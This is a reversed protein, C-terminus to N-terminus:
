NMRYTSTVKARVLLPVFVTVVVKEKIKGKATKCMFRVAPVRVKAIQYTGSTGVGGKQM